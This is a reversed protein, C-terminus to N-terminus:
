FSLLLDYYVSSFSNSPPKWILILKLVMLYTVSFCVRTMKRRICTVLYKAGFINMLNNRYSCM